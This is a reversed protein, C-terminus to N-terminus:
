TEMIDIGHCAKMLRKKLLYAATRFGKVDEVVRWGVRDFYCFDAVYECVKQGNVELVFRRQREMATIEGILEMMALQEFRRKEKTSDFGDTRRNGYKSRKATLDVPTGCHKCRSSKDLQRHKCAVRRSM